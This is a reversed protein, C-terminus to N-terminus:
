VRCAMAPNSNGGAGQTVKFDVQQMNSGVPTVQAGGGFVLTKYANMYGEHRSEFIEIWEKFQESTIEKDLSVVM